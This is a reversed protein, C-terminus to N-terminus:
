PKRKLDFVEMKKQGGNVAFEWTETHHDPDLMAVTLHEMHGPQAPSVNTADVFNFSITKGDPSLAGAMRPQNGAACYHTMMLRSGDLHFMTIMDEHGTIESLIASGGSTERFIVTVPMGQSTKGEWTGTLTKLQDFSKQADSEAFAAIATLAIVVIVAIRALKM